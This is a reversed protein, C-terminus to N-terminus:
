RRARLPPSPPWEGVPIPPANRADAVSGVMEDGAGFWDCAAFGSRTCYRGYTDLSPIMFWRPSQSLLCHGRVPGFEALPCSRFQPCLPRAAELLQTTREHTSVDDRTKATTM